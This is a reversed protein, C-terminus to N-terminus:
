ENLLRALPLRRFPNQPVTLVWLNDHVPQAPRFARALKQRLKKFDRKNAKPARLGPTEVYLVPHRESLLRAIHHSSTRNEAFWDNGFYVVALNKLSMKAANPKGVM